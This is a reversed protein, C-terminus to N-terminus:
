SATYLVGNIGRKYNPPVPKTRTSASEEAKVNTVGVSDATKIIGASEEAEELSRIVPAFHWPMNNEKETLM